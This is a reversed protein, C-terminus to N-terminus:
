YDLALKVLSVCRAQIARILPTMRSYRAKPRRSQWPFMGDFAPREYLMLTNVGFKEAFLRM